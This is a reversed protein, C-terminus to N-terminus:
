NGQNKPSVKHTTTKDALIWHDPDLEVQEPPTPVHLTVQRKPGTAFVIGRAVKDKGFHMVLPLPMIWQAPVDTQTVTGHILASGDAERQVWYSFDYSPLAAEYVWQHFFWNLNKMRYTKAMPTNAFHQNAVAMFDETDAARNAYRNVFDKMMDFFETDSGTNPDTFLFDLMRLVLAGKEYILATYAGFSQRTSLRHGLIIPGIDVLRGKGLGALTRPSELLEDHMRRLLDKADNKNRDRRETYLVGSYDAFGESLWQDRYSRWLVLDGWWEHSTEHAIFSYTYKDARDSKPLMLMTPFGQGFPYPHYTAGFRPYPYPGFLASFYRVCNNLEALIFDTKMGGAYDYPGPPLRYFDLELERGDAMKAKDTYVHFDGIAFTVLGVPQDMRWETLMDHDPSEEERVKQGVSAVVTKRKHLFTIDFTARNLDTHRPYWCDGRVYRASLFGSDDGILFDGEFALVPEITQGKALPKDLFLTVGGEWDEQVATLAEGNAFHAGQLRLAKKLRVNDHASLTENIMLPVARVGETLATMTMHAEIKMHKWDRLDIKMDYHSIKVLAHADSYEVIRTKYDALAYFAMWVDPSYTISDYAFFLGQEGGNLGFNASPLRSQYDLILDFRHRSGGDFQALFFGSNEQDLISAAVRAAVNAGTEKLLRGNLESALKQADDPPNGGPTIKLGLADAADDSFRLVATKFDSDVATAHLMRQLNDQEFISDPADAHVKGKGLFVAGRIRGDLPAEFYFTGTFTIEARDRKLVLNEVHASGGNLDFRALAQYLAMGTNATDAPQSQAYVAVGPWAIALLLAAVSVSSSRLRRNSAM